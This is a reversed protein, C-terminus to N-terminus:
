FIQRMDEPLPMSFDMERGTIPHVFSLRCAHLAQRSIPAEGPNYLPDGLIPCGIHKMHVRIQHTRGTELVLSVLSYGNKVELVQYHTVARQGNEPDVYRQVLSGPMRGLPADITGKLPSPTGQVIALYERRLEHRVGMESLMAASVYHKAIVTLGSTDRDLRNSCHFATEEGKEQFYWALANALTNETNSFSPHVPMGAEKGVVMLDEDEYILSFPLRVPLIPASPKERITLSLVNGERLLDCFRAANGNVRVLGDEKKLEIMNQRSFGKHRLFQRIKTGDSDAEIRYTLIREM